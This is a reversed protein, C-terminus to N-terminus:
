ALEGIFFIAEYSLSHYPVNFKLSKAKGFPLAGGGLLGGRKLQQLFSERDNFEQKFTEVWMTQKFGKFSQELIGCVEKAERLPSHTNLFTHLEHLSASTHIALAVRKCSQALHGCVQALNQAWQLSSASIALDSPVFETNEFDVCELRVSKASPSATPHLSLMQASIDLGVFTDVEVGLAPLAKLVTGSGCGLDLVRGYCGCALPALLREVIRKQVSSFEAYTKARKSFSHRM